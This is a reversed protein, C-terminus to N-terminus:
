FSWSSERERKERKQRKDKRPPNKLFHSDIKEQMEKRRSNSSDRLEQLDMLKNVQHNSM